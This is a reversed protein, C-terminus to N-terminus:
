VLGGTDVNFKEGTLPNTPPRAMRPAPGGPQPPVLVNEMNEPAGGTGPGGEMPIGPGGEPPPPGGGPPLAGPPMMPPQIPPLGMVQLLEPPTTRWVDFHKTLHATWSEVVKPDERSEPSDMVVKHEQIHLPHNDTMVVEPIDGDGIRENESKINLLESVKGEIMPELRGTQLVQLYQQPNEIMQASLLAEAMNVRGATTRALPNGLDVTVRNIQNLDKGTWERMLSRNAKGAISAVRKTSAFDQLIEIIGTGVDENLQAYSQQLGSNFQIAMSQVLALAAGSKLSAEPTGRTVSTLGAIVEMMSRVQDVFKFIEAPISLLNLGEPKGFQADYELLNLGEVIQSVTLGHGKPACINQVGFTAANTSITSVLANLTQQLPLLDFAVTYGFPTGDQDGAAIRFLTINKFPLPGDTLIADPSVLRVLRGDPVADTRKHHLTYVPILDSEEHRPTGFMFIKADEDISCSLIKHRLDENKDKGKGKSDPAYKAAVDYKNKFRRTIRWDCDLSSPRTFDLIVDLPGYAYAELDGEKVPKGVEDKVYERGATADWDLEFYGDGYRLAYDTATDSYRELKKERLYYELLGVALITQSMSEHDSNTAKPEFSPRTSTTMVKLHQLINRYDALDVNTYEAQEGTQYVKGGSKVAQYYFDYSRKYLTLRGSTRLYEYFAEIKAFLEPGIEESPLAAFYTDKM